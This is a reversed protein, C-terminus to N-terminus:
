YMIYLYKGQTATTNTLENFKSDLLVLTDEANLAEQLKVSVGEVSCEAESLRIYAVQQPIFTGNSVDM